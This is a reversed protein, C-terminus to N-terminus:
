KNRETYEEYMEDAMIKPNVGVDSWFNREGGKTHLENHHSWCLVVGVRDDRIGMGLRFEGQLHHFQRQESWNDFGMISCVYCPFKDLAWKMYARDKYKNKTSVLTTM